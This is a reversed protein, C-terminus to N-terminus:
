SWRVNPSDIVVWVDGEETTEVKLDDPELSWTLGNQDAILVTAAPEGIDRLASILEQITM